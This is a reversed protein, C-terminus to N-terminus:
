AHAGNTEALFCLKEGMMNEKNILRACEICYHKYSGKNYYFAEPKQCATRYCLKGWEGADPHRGDVLKVSEPWVPSGWKDNTRQPPEYENEQVLRRYIARDKERDELSEVKNDRPAFVPPVGYGYPTEFAERLRVERRREQEEGEKSLRTEATHHQIGAVAFPDLLSLGFLPSTSLRLSLGLGSDRGIAPLVTDMVERMERQKKKIFDDLLTDLEKLNVLESADQKLWAMGKVGRKRGANRKYTM